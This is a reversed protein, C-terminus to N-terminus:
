SPGIATPSSASTTSTTRRSASQRQSNAPGYGWTWGFSVATYWLERIENHEILNDHAQGVWVGVCGPFLNGGDAVLCDCVHNGATQDFEDSRIATEGLKIGGAGLDTFQCQRVENDRCGRALELGYTGLHSFRCGTWQCHCVFEGAVTGPVGFAAQGFGTRREAPAARDFFWEGHSFQLGTFSLYEVPRRREPDGALRVLRDLRPAIIPAQNPDVGAPPILYIARAAVNFWFSGADRLAVSLNEIWYRDDVTVRLTTPAAAQWLRGARDIGTLPLHSDAWLSCVIAEAGALSAVDAPPEDAASYGVASVGSGLEPQQADPALHSVALTGQRPWRCRSLRVDGCWLERIEATGADAPLSARWVTQGNLQTETWGSIPRGGSIVPEEGPMARWAVPALATGSDDSSFTLTQDLYYTGGRLWVTVAPPNGGARRQRVVDRAHALSALPGDNGGPAADPRSGSHADNGAPSVYIEVTAAAQGIGGIVLTAALVLVALGATSKPRDSM